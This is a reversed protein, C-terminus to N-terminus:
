DLSITTPMSTLNNDTPILPKKTAAERSAKAAEGSLGEVLFIGRTGRQLKSSNLLFSQTNTASQNFVLPVCLIDEM